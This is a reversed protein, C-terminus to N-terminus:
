AICTFLKMMELKMIRKQSFIEKGIDNVKKLTEEFKISKQEYNSINDIKTMQLFTTM